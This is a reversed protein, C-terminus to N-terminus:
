KRYNYQLMLSCEIYGELSSRQSPAFSTQLISFVCEASASSPPITVISKCATSWNPLDDMEPTTDEATSLYTPLESKLSLLLPPNSNLFPFVSLTDLDMCTPQMEYIKLPNFFRAAKFIEVQKALDVTFKQQFYALAPQACMNAYTILQNERASDGGSLERAVAATNPHHSLAVTSRM